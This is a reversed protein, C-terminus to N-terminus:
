RGYGWKVAIGYKKCEDLRDIDGTHCDFDTERVVRQNLIFVVRIDTLTRLPLLLTPPTFRTVTRSAVMNGFALDLSACRRIDISQLCPLNRVEDSFTLFDLLRPFSRRVTLRELSQLAPLSLYEVISDHRAVDMMFLHELRCASRELFDVFCPISPISRDSFHIVRLAPFSFYNFISPSRSDRSVVKLSLSLLDPLLTVNPPIPERPSCVSQILCHVLRTCRSVINICHDLPLNGIHLHLTTLQSWPFQFRPVLDPITGDVDVLYLEQLHTFITPQISLSLSVAYLLSWRSPDFDMRLVKLPLSKPHTMLMNDCLEPVLTATHWRHLNSLLLEFVRRRLRANRRRLRFPQESPHDM